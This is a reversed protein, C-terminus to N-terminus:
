YAHFSGGLNDRAGNSERDEEGVGDEDDSEETPTASDARQTKLYEEVEERTANITAAASPQGQLVDFGPCEETCESHISENRAHRNCSNGSKKWLLSKSRSLCPKDVPTCNHICKVYGAQVRRATKVM